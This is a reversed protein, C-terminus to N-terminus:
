KDEEGGFRKSLRKLARHITVKVASQSLGTETSVEAISRGEIKVAKVLTRTTDPLDELVKDLDQHTAATQTEDFALLDEPTDDLAVTIHRHRMRILDILKYHAIAHLWATFPRERDYTARRTHIAILTEQVLDDIASRDILRRMYYARLRDGCEKLLNRYAREDGELSLLMLSKLRTEVTEV